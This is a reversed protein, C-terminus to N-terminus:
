TDFKIYDIPHDDYNDNWLKHNLAYIYCCNKKWKSMGYKESIISGHNNLLDFYSYGVTGQNLKIGYSYRLNQSPYTGISRREIYM